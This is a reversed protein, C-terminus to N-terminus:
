VGVKDNAWEGAASVIVVSKYSVTRLPPHIKVPSDLWWVRCYLRKFIFHLEEVTKNKCESRDSPRWRNSLRAFQSKSRRPGVRSAQAARVAGDKKRM